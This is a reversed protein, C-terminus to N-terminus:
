LEAVSQYEWRLTGNELDHTFLLAHNEQPLLSFNIGSALFTVGETTEYSFAHTRMGIDGGVCFVQTGERQVRVLEPYLDAYFNNPRLCYGCTGARGNSLQDIQAGLVPHGPMWILKHHLLILCESDQLTDLVSQVLEWQENKITGQNIESDLVLFTIGQQHYHYFTPRQTYQRLLEPQSYDHNGASLLTTPKSLGFLADAQQIAPENETTFLALDGGLWLMDYQDFNVAHLPAYIEPNTNTRTHSLHLYHRLHTQPKIEWEPDPSCAVIWLCLIPLLIGPKRNM